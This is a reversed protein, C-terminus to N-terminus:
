RICAKFWVSYPQYLWWKIPVRGNHRRVVGIAAARAAYDTVVDAASAAPVGAVPTGLLCLAFVSGLRGKVM